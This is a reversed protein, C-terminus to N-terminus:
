NKNNENLSNGIEWADDLCNYILIKRMVYGEFFLSILKGNRWVSPEVVPGGKFSLPPKSTITGDLFNITFVSKLPLSKADQGGFVIAEQKWPFFYAGHLCSEWPMVVSLGIWLNEKISYKEIGFCSESGKGGFVFINENLSDCCGGITDKEESLDAIFEWNEYELSFKMCKNTFLYEPDLGGIVYVYDSCYIVFHNSRGDLMPPLVRLSLKPETTILFCDPLSIEAASKRGGCILAQSFPLYTLKCYMLGSYSIPLTYTSQTFNDINVLHITRDGWEVHILKDTFGLLVLNKRGLKCLDKVKSLPINVFETCIKQLKIYIELIRTQCESFIVKTPKNELSAYFESFESCLESLEQSDQLNKTFMLGTELNLLSTYINSLTSELTEIKHHSHFVSCRSCLLTECSTCTLKYKKIHTSCQSIERYFQEKVSNKPLDIGPKSKNIFELCSGCVVRDMVQNGYSSNSSLLTKCVFCYLSNDM